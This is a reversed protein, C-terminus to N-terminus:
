KIGLVSPDQMLRYYDEPTLTNMSQLDPIGYNAQLYASRDADMSAAKKANFGGFAGGALMGPLAGIGFGILPNKNALVAFLQGLGGGLAAGVGAGGLVRRTPHTEGNGTPIGLTELGRIYDENPTM